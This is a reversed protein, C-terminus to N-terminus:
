LSQSKQIEWQNNRRIILNATTGCCIGNNTSQLLADDFGALTAERRAQIAQGYAFTKCKSIISHPNRREYQSIVTSISNFCPEYKSLEMWFRHGSINKKQSINIGRHIKNGRSWNLRIASNQRKLKFIKIGEYILPLLWEKTPPSEMGLLSASKNWRKLHNDLLKPEGNSIFITEFIGDAFNLGRDNISINLDSSLGWKNNIWGIEKNM